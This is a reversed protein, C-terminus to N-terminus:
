VGLGRFGQVRFGLAYVRFGIDPARFWSESGLFNPLM